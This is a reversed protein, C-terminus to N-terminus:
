AETIDRGILGVLEAIAGSSAPRMPKDLVRRLEDPYLSALVSAMERPTIDCCKNIWSSVTMHCAYSIGEFQYLTSPTVPEGREGFVEKMANVHSNVAPFSFEYNWWHVHEKFLPLAACILELSILHGEFCSFTRGIRHIGLEAGYQQYWSAVDNVGSFLRYFSTRSINSALCVESVSVQALTKGDTKLIGLLASLVARRKDIHDFCPLQDVRGGSEFGYM